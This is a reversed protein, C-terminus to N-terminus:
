KRVKSLIVQGDRIIYEVDFVFYGDQRKLTGSVTVTEGAAPLTGSYLSATQWRAQQEATFPVFVHLQCGKCGYDVLVIVGDDPKVDGVIDTITLPGLYKGPNATVDKVSVATEGRGALRPYAFVAALVLLLVIIILSKKHM